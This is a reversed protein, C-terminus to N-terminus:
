FSSAYANLKKSIDEFKWRVRWAGAPIIENKKVPRIKMRKDKVAIITVVASILLSGAMFMYSADFNGTVANLYGVLYAGGFGGM